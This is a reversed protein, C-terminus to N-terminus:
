QIVPNWPSRSTTQLKIYIYIYNIYIPSIFSLCTFYRSSIDCIISHSSEGFLKAHTNMNCQVVLEYM